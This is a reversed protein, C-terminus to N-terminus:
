MIHKHQPNLDPQLAWRYAPHIEYDYGFDTFDNYIYQNEDYYKRDIGSSTQKRATLFNIKYLFAALSSATVDRGDTFNFRSMSLINKLKNLLEGRTYINPNGSEIEKKTPKMKLMLEKVQPLESKYENCTDTLRDNSYLRFSEELDNTLIKNHNHKYANRAALTCLKVLDRPRKRILSMIVQYMPANNWHGAGHFHSEFVSDLYYSIENQRKSMLELEDINRGFHSEIRKILMVLIEHNTWMQWLVSGDIKDTTEDSTRVAYYVDSRLAIRFNLGNIERSLDRVANLMASLNDIDESTNKWGRDLDDLYITIKRKLVSIDQFFRSIEANSFNLNESSFTLSKASLFSTAIEKVKTLWNRATDNSILEIQKNAISQLLKKLIIKSLGEKWEQIKRLFNDEKHQIEIIDNPQIQIPLNDEELDESYLIKFLASKGVGKHGVLLYLSIDSKIRNYIDTKLYYQKLRAPNEDEAAEHGFISRITEENFEISNNM